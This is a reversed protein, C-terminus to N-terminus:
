ADSFGELFRASDVSFERYNNVVSRQLKTRLLIFQVFGFLLPARPSYLELLSESLSVIRFVVVFHSYSLDSFM